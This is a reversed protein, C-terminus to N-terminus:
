KKTMILRSIQAKDLIVIIFQSFLLPSDYKVIKKFFQCKQGGVSFPSYCFYADAKFTSVYNLRFPIFFAKLFHFSCPPHPPRFLTLNRKSTEIGLIKPKKM